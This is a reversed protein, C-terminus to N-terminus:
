QWRIPKCWAQRRARLEPLKGLDRSTHPPSDSPADLRSTRTLLSASPSRLSRHGARAADPTAVASMSQSGSAPPRPRRTRSASKTRASSGSSSGVNIRVRASAETVYEVGMSRPLLRGVRTRASVRRLASIARTRHALRCRREGAIPRLRRGEVHPRSCHSSSRQDAPRATGQRELRRRRPRTQRRRNVGHGM